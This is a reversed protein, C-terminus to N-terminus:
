EEGPKIKNVADIFGQMFPSVWRKSHVLIQSHYFLPETEVNLKIIRGSDLASKVSYEPLFALNQNNKLLDAIAVTSDVEISARVSCGIDSALANLRQFCFGSRETVIFSHSFLEKPPIAKRSKLPHENGAVFVLNEKRKYVTKLESDTNQHGSVYVMDLLNQKLLKILETGQGMKFQLDLNIFRQKFEPLLELVSSFLLSELVGIKLTSLIDAFDKGITSSKQMIKEMEYASSLFEEGFATLSVSKGIRDFLPFGLEQELQQIQLTVTPQSYNLQEAVKTFNKLEAALIFTKINRLEMQVGVILM